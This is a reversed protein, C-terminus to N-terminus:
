SFILQLIFSYLSYVFSSDIFITSLHGIIAPYDSISCSITLIMPYPSLLPITHKTPSPLSHSTWTTVVLFWSKFISNWLQQVVSQCNPIWGFWLWTTTARINAPIVMSYKQRSTFCDQLQWMTCLVSLQWSLNARTLILRVQFFPVIRNYRRWVLCPHRRGQTRTTCHWRATEIM